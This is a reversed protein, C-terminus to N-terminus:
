TGTAVEDPFIRARLKHKVLSLIEERQKVNFALLFLLFCHAAVYLIVVIVRREQTGVQPTVWLWRVAQWSTLLFLSVIAAPVMLWVICHLIPVFRNETPHEIWLRGGLTRYVSAFQDWLLLSEGALKNVREELLGLYMSVYLIGFQRNLEMSMLILILTPIFVILQFSATRYIFAIVGGVIALSLALINSFGTIGALAEHRLATYEHLIIDIQEKATLTPQDIARSEEENSYQMDEAM